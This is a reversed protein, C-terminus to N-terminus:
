GPRKQLLYLAEDYANLAYGEDDDADHRAHTEHLRNGHKVTDAVEGRPPEDSETKEGSYKAAHHLQAVPQRLKFLPM